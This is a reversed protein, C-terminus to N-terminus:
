KCVIWIWEMGNWESHNLIQTLNFRWQGKIIHMEVGGNFLCSKSGELTISLLFVGSIPHNKALSPATHGSFRGLGVARTSTVARRGWNTLKLNQETLSSWFSQYRLFSSCQFSSEGVRINWFFHFFKKKILIKVSRFDETRLSFSPLQRVSRQSNM